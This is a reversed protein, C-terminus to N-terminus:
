GTSKATTSTTFNRNFPMMTSGNLGGPAGGGVIGQENMPPPRMGHSGGMQGNMPSQPPGNM